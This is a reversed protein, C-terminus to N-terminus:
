REGRSHGAWSDAQISAPQGRNLPNFTGYLRGEVGQHFSLATVEDFPRRLTTAAVGIDSSSISWITRVSGRISKM